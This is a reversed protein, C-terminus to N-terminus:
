KPKRLGYNRWTDDAIVISKLILSPDIGLKILNMGIIEKIKSM